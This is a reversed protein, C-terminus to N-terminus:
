DMTCTICGTCYYVDFGMIGKKKLDCKGGQSGNSCDCKTPSASNQITNIQLDPFVSKIEPDNPIILGIEFGYLITKAYVYDNKDYVGTSFSPKEVYTYIVDYTRKIEEKVEKVNFFGEKGKNTLSAREMSLDSDIRDNKSNLIGMVQLKQDIRSANGSCTDNCTSQLCGYGLTKMNIVTCSGGGSCTCSYGAGETSLIFDGSELDKLLFTYDEPLEFLVENKQENSYYWRTGEPMYIGDAFLLREELVAGNETRFEISKEQSSEEQQVKSCSTIMIIMGTLMVTLSFMMKNKM